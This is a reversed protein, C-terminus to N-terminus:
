LRTIITKYKQEIPKDGRPITRIFVRLSDTKMEEWPLERWTQCGVPLTQSISFYKGHRLRYQIEVYIV